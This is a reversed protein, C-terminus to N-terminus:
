VRQPQAQADALQLDVLFNKKISLHSGGMLSHGGQPPITAKECGLWRSEFKVGEGAKNEEKASLM